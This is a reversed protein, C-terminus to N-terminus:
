KEANAPQSAPVVWWSKEWRELGQERAWNDMIDELVASGGYVSGVPICSDPKPPLGQYFRPNGWNEWEDSLISEIVIQIEDLADISQRAEDRTLRRTSPGDPQAAATLGGQRAAQALRLLDDISVANCFAVLLDGNKIEALKMLGPIQLTELRQRLAAPQMEHLQDYIARIERIMQDRLWTGARDKLHQHCWGKGGETSGVDTDGSMRFYPKTGAMRRPASHASAGPHPSEFWPHSIKWPEEFTRWCAVTGLDEEVSLRMWFPRLPQLNDIVSGGVSDQSKVKLGLTDAIPHGPFRHLRVHVRQEIERADYIRTIKSTTHVLAQYCARGTDGADRYQKLIIRNLPAGLALVELALAKANRAEEQQVSALYTKRKLDDVLEQGWSAAVMNWGVDDNYPLVDLGDIELLRRQEAKQGLYLAPFIETELRLLRRDAVPGSQALWADAPSAITATVSARGNVERDTAAARGSSCYVFPEIMALSVLKGDDDYWKVPVAFVVEREAWWGINNTSSWMTGIQGGYVKVMLYVYSGFTEFRWRQPTKTQPCIMQQLPDNLYSELFRDLKGRDALLPYVQLTVDPFHFPGTVPQTAAGLATNYAAHGCARPKAASEPAAEPAVADPQEDQWPDDHDAGSQHRRSCIVDGKGYYLDVDTWFPFVPKLIAVNRGGTQEQSAAVELGLCEIIPQAVYDHIRVAFGGSTDGRLLGADGLLGGRNLRDFGMTSGVLAKYCVLAPTEADRFQKLTVNDIFLKPLGATLAATEADRKGLSPLLLDPLLHLLNSGAKGGMALLSRMSRDTQYGRIRLGLLMDAADGMLSLWADFANPVISLPSWPNRPNPPFESYTSAPDSDIQLLPQQTQADGAYVDAFDSTSLSFLRTSARPDATWLPIDSDIKGAVKPWGYVERGTNLSIQDDVYIFPSVCAWDKFVLKGNEERWRQLPVTFTVEHQAVWGVNQAEVSAASMSGYNLVMLYVYPMAPVYHVIDPPIDSNLYQDCFHTLTAINAKLPFVRTTVNHFLFPPSVPFAGFRPDGAPDIYRPKVIQKAM